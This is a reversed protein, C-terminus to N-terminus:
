GPICVGDDKFSYQTGDIWYLGSHYMYFEYPDFYYKKGNIMQWGTRLVGDTGGYYTDDYKTTIWGTGLKGSPYFYYPQGDIYRIGDSYMRGDPNNFYYTTGDVTYWELAAKGDHKVYYYFGNIYHWGETHEEGTRAGNYDFRNLVGGIVVAGTTMFWGNYPDFYYDKGGITQWGSAISGDQMIYIWLPNRNKDFLKHWGPKTLLAGSDGFVYKIGDVWEVKNQVMSGNSYFYYWAGNIWKWGFYPSGNADCYYWYLVGDGRHASTWGGTSLAGSDWFVYWVGDIQNSGTYMYPVGYSSFYYWAGNIWKWGSALAGSSDAYYWLTSKSGYKDEYDLRIWGTAMVGSSYFYYFKGGIQEFRNRAMWYGGPDFYYWVGNIKQWGTVFAGSSDAYQWADSLTGDANTFTEHIWGTMMAGSDSFRYVKGNITATRNRYMVCQNTPDFYYWVGNIKEWGSALAGGSKAYHWYVYDEGGSTFTVKCWGTGMKGDPYFFYYEGNILQITNRYYYTSSTYYYWAGNQYEWGPKSAQAKMPAFLTLLMVITLLAIIIKKKM